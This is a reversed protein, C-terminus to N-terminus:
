KMARTHASSNCLTRHVIIDDRVYLMVFWNLSTATEEMWRKAVSPTRVLTKGDSLNCLSADLVSIRLHINVDWDSATYNLIMNSLIPASITYTKTMVSIGNVCRNMENNITMRTSTFPPRHLKNDECAKTQYAKRFRTQRWLPAHM